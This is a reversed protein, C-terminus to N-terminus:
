DEVFEINDWFEVGATTNERAFREELEVIADEFNDSEVDYEVEIKLKM